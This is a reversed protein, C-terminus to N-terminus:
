KQRKDLGKYEMGGGPGAMKWTWEMTDANVVTMQGEYSMTKGDLSCMQGKVHFTKGDADLTLWGEGRNGWDDVSWMHFKGAKPDWTTYSVETARQGEGMEHWGESKLYMGGLAWEYKGAGAFKTPMEKPAEAGPKPPPMKEMAKKMEEKTPKVMEGTGTWSGVFPQLKAMEKPVEPKKMDMCMQDQPQACGVTFAAAVLVILLIRAM